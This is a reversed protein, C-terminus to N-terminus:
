HGASFHKTTERFTADITAKIRTQIMRCCTCPAIEKWGILPNDVSDHRLCSERDRLSAALDNLHRSINLTRDRKPTTLILEIKRFAMSGRGGFDDFSCDRVEM